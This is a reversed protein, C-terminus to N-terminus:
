GTVDRSVVARAFRELIGLDTPPALYVIFTEIGATALAEFDVDETVTFSATKEIADYDRGLAPPRLALDLRLRAGRRPARDRGDDRLRARRPGRTLGAPRDPRVEDCV